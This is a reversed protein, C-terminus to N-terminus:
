HKEGTSGLIYNVIDAAIEKKSKLEFNTIKNHKDVITVKNTDGAFGSGAENAANAVILDLNKSKLKGKAYELLNDTELAFGVLCQKQKLRGLEELIDKTRVLELKMEEEEKKIKSASALKPAYDAVAAACVAISCSAFENVCANYMQDASEVRIVKVLPHSVPESSPGLVLTVLAGFAAFQEAIAVGMKGSSRNGIFRVPDIAEYTPGANVLVKRGALPLMKAFYNELFDVIHEPEAMRGEGVLGSALEGNEAPIVINGFSEIKKLNEKVAPHRYMDLDMAPAVMTKNKASLYAGLLINDCLGSAMKALTNATLPAILMLDAWEALKVHNNWNHDSDFFDHLVENRSVVSLTQPTVFDRAAPTMIVRVEAGKKVLLRVLAPCKYAAIGGSIGLLIKKSYLM